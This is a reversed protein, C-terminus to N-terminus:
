FINVIKFATKDKIHELLFNCGDLNEIGIKFEEIEIDSKIKTIETEVKELENHEIYYAMKEYENQWKNQIKKVKKIAENKNVDNQLLIQRLSNLEITMMEVAKNTNKQTIVNGFIIVILIIICIILEKYM